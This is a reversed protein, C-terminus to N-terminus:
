ATRDFDYEIRYVEKNGATNAGVIYVAYMEDATLTDAAPTMTITQINATATSNVTSVPTSTTPSASGSTAVCKELKATIDASAGGLARCIVRVAKLRAGVALPLDAYLSGPGSASLQLYPSGPNKTFGALIDIESGGIRETRDNHLIDAGQTQVVWGQVDATATLTVATIETPDDLWALWEYTTFQLWNFYDAPIVAADEWGVDKEGSSPETIAAGGGDAWRPLNTPKSLSM